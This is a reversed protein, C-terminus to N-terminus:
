LAASTAPCCCIHCIGVLRTLRIIHVSILYLASLIVVIQAVGNKALNCDSLFCVANPAVCLGCHSNSKIDCLSLTAKAGPYVFVGAATASVVISCSVHLSAGARILTSETVVCLHALAPLCVKTFLYLLVLHGLVTWWWVIVFLIVVKLLSHQTQSAGHSCATFHSAM